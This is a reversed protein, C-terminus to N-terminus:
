TAMILPLLKILLRLIMEFLAPWDIDRSWDVPGNGLDLHVRVHGEMRELQRTRRASDKASIIRLVRKENLTLKGKDSLQQQLAGAFSGPKLDKRASPEPQLGAAVSEGDATPPDQAVAKVFFTPAPGVESEALGRGQAQRLVARIQAPTGPAFDRRLFPMGTTSGVPRVLLRPTSNGNFSDGVHVWVAEPFGKRIEPADHCTMGILIFLPKREADARKIAENLDNSCDLDRNEQCKKFGAAAKVKADSSPLADRKLNALALAAKAKATALDVDKAGCAFACTLVMALSLFWRM